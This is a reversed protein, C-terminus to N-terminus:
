SQIDHLCLSGGPPAHNVRQSCAAIAEPLFHYDPVVRKFDGHVDCEAKSRPRPLHWSTELSGLPKTPAPCIFLTTKAVAAMKPVTRIAAGASASSAGATALGI